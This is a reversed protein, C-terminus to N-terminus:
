GPTRSSLASLTPEAFIIDDNARLKEIVKSLDRREMKDSGIRIMYVGQASPGSVIEGGFPALIRVIRHDAIHDAFVVRIENDKSPVRKSSSLTRFQNVPQDSSHFDGPL